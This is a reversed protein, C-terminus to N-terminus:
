VDHTLVCRARSVAPRALGNPAAQMGRGAVTKHAIPAPAAMYPPLCSEQRADKKRLSSWGESGAGKAAQPQVDDRGAKTM